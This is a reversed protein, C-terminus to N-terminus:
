SPCRIRSTASTGGRKEGRKTYIRIAGNAAQMGYLTTAAPGRLVEIRVVDSPDIFELADMVRTAGPRRTISSTYVPRMPIDDVIILPSNSASASSNGRMRLGAGSGLHGSASWIDLGPIHGQLARALSNADNISDVPVSKCSSGSARPAAQSAATQSFAIGASFMQLWVCISLASVSSSSVLKRLISLCSMTLGGHQLSFREAILGVSLKCWEAGRSGITLYHFAQPNRRHGFGIEFRNV